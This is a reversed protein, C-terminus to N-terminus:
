IFGRARNGSLLDDTQAGQPQTPHLRFDDWRIMWNDDLSIWCIETQGAGRSLSGFDAASLGSLESVMSIGDPYWMDDRDRRM